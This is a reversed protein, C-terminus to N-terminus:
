FLLINHTSSYISLDVYTNCGRETSVYIYLMDVYNGKKSVLNGGVRSREEALIVNLGLKDLYFASTSGCLGSGVVIVDVVKDDTESSSVVNSFPNRILSTLFNAQIFAMGLIFIILSIRYM